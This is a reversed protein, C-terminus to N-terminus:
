LLEDTGRGLGGRLDDLEGLLGVIRAGVHEGVVEIAGGGLGARVRDHEDGVRHAAGLVVVRGLAGQDLAVQVVHDAGVALAGGRLVGARGRDAVRHPGLDLRGDVGDGAALCGLSSFSTLAAGTSSRCDTTRPPGERPPAPSRTKRLRAIQAPTTMRAVSAPPASNRITFAQGAIVAPASSSGPSWLRTLNMQGSSNPVSTAAVIAITIATGIDTATASNMLWM